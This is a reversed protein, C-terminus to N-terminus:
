IYLTSLLLLPFEIFVYIKFGIVDRIKWEFYNHMAFIGM